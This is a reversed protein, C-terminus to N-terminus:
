TVGLGPPGLLGQCSSGCGLLVPCPGRGRMDFQIAGPGLRAQRTMPSEEAAFPAAESHRNALSLRATKHRELSRVEILVARVALRSRYGQRDVDYGECTPLTLWSYSEHRLVSLDDPRLRSVQRLEYVYELEGNHLLIRDGWRLNGLDAFLGPLGNPLYIDATLASNGPLTPYATGQLYGVQDRLWTLDWGDNGSPVGVVPARVGLSPIELSLGGLDWYPSGPPAAPLETRRGPAFGTAPLELVM